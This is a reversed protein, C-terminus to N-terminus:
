APEDRILAIIRRALAANLQELAEDDFWAPDCVEILAACIDRGDLGFEMAADLTAGLSGAPQVDHSRM